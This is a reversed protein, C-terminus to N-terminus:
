SDGEGGTLSASASVLLSFVAATADTALTDRSILPTLNVQVADVRQGGNCMWRNLLLFYGLNQPSSSATNEEAGSLELLKWQM